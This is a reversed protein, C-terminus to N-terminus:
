KFTAVLQSKNILQKIYNRTINFQGPPYNEREIEGEREGEDVDIDSHRDTKRNRFVNDMRGMKFKSVSM